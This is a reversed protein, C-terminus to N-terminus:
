HVDDLDVVVTIEGSGRGDGVRMLAKLLELLTYFLLDMSM